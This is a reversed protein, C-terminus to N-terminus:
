ECKHKTDLEDWDPPSLDASRKPNVPPTKRTVRFTRVPGTKGDMLEAAYKTKSKRGRERHNLKEVMAQMIWGSITLTGPSGPRDNLEQVTKELAERFSTGIRITIRENGKSM